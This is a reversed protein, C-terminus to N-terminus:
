SQTFAAMEPTTLIRHGSNSRHDEQELFFIGSQKVEHLFGYQYARTENGGTAKVSIDVASALSAAAVAALLVSKLGAM